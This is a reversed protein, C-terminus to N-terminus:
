RNKAKKFFHYYESNRIQRNCAQTLAEYRHLEEATHIYEGLRHLEM